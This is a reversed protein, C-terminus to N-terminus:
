PQEEAVADTKDNGAVASHHEAEALKGKLSAIREEINKMNPHDPTLHTDQRAYTEELQALNERLARTRAEPDSHQSSTDSEPPPSPSPKPEDDQPIHISDPGHASPEVPQVSLLLAISLGFLLLGVAVLCGFAILIWAWVSLRKRKKGVAAPAPAPMARLMENCEDQTIKGDALMQLLRKREADAAQTM